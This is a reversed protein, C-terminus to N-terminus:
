KKKTPFLFSCSDTHIRYGNQDSSSDKIKNNSHTKLYHPDWYHRNSKIFENVIDKMFYTRYVSRVWVPNSADVNMEDLELVFLLATANLVIDLNDNTMFLLFFTSLTVLKGALCNSLRDLYYLVLHKTNDRSRYEPFITVFDFFNARSQLCMYRVILTGCISVSWRLVDFTAFVDERNAWVHNLTLLMLMAQTGFILVAQHFEHDSDELFAANFSNLGPQMTHIKKMREIDNAFVSGATILLLFFLVFALLVADHSADRFPVLFFFYLFYQYDNGTIPIM